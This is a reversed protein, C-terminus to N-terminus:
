LGRLDASKGNSKLVPVIPAAWDAFQVPKIIGENELRDLEKKIMDKLSYPVSRAKYFRLTATPDVQLKVEYGKLTGLEANFVTSHRKLCRSGHQMAVPSDKELEVHLTGALRSWVAHPWQGGGCDIAIGAKPGRIGGRSMGGGTREATRRLRTTTEQIPHELWFRTFTEKSVLSVAAGTDLEMAIEKGEVLLKVELPKQPLRKEAATTVQNLSYENQEEYEPSEMQVVRVPNRANYQQASNSKKSRCM